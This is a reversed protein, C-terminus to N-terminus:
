GGGASCVWASHVLRFSHKQCCGTRSYPSGLAALDADHFGTPSRVTSQLSSQLHPLVMPTAAPHCHHWPSTGVESCNCLMLGSKSRLVSTRDVSLFFCWWATAAKTSDTWKCSILLCSLHARLLVCIKWRYKYKLGCMELYCCCWYISKGYLM